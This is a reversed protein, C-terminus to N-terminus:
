LRAVPGPLSARNLTVLRRVSGRIRAPTSRTEKHADRYPRLV